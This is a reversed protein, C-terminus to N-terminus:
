CSHLIHCFPYNRASLHSGLRSTVVMANGPKELLSKHHLYEDSVYDHTYFKNRPLVNVM